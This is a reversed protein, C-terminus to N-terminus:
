IRKNRIGCDTQIPSAMAHFGLMHAQVQGHSDIPEVAAMIYWAEKM